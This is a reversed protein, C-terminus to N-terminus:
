FVVIFTVVAYANTACYDLTFILVFRIEGYLSPICTLLLLTRCIYLNPLNNRQARWETIRCLMNQNTVAYTACRSCHKELLELRPSVLCNYNMYQQQWMFCMINNCKREHM